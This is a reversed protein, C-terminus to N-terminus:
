DNQENKNLDPYVRDWHSTIIGTEPDKESLVITKGSLHPMRAGTLVSSNDGFNIKVQNEEIDRYIYGIADSNAPLIRSLKGTVDLTKVSMETTDENMATEKVHGVLIINPAVKEFWSIIKQMAERQYLYGAGQALKLVSENPDWNKGMTTDRYLQNAYPLAIDELATITDLAVYDFQGPNQGLEKAIMFLEKHNKAKINYSDVYRTGDELDIILCKPLMSLLTTKGAKPLGFMILNKPNNSAIGSKKTPLKIGSM